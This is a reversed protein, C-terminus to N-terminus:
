ISVHHPVAAIRLKVLPVTVLYRAIHPKLIREPGAHLGPSIGIGLAVLLFPKGCPQRPMSLCLVLFFLRQEAIAPQPDHLPPRGVAAANSNADVDGIQLPLLCREAQQEVTMRKRHEQPIPVSEFIERDVGGGAPMVTVAVFLEHFHGREVDPRLLVLLQQAFSNGCRRRAVNLTATSTVSRLCASFSNRRVRENRSATTSFM